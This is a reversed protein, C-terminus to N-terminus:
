ILYKIKVSNIQIPVASGKVFKARTKLNTYFCFERCHLFLQTDIEGGEKTFFFVNYLSLWAKNAESNIFIQCTLNIENKYVCNLNRQSTSRCAAM